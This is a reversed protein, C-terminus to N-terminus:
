PYRSGFRRISSAFPANEAFAGRRGLPELNGPRAPYRQVSRPEAGM